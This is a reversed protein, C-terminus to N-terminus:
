LCQQDALPSASLGFTERFPRAITAGSRLDRSANPGGLPSECLGPGLVPPLISEKRMRPPLRRLPLISILPLLFLASGITAAHRSASPLVVSWLTGRRLSM